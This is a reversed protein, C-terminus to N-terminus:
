KWEQFKIKDILKNENKMKHKFWLTLLNLWLTCLTLLKLWLTCLPLLKFCLPACPYSIKINISETM